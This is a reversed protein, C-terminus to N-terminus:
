DHRKLHFLTEPGLPIPARSKTEREGREKECSEGWRRIRKGRLTALLASQTVREGAGARAEETQGNDGGFWLLTRGVLDRETYFICQLPQLQDSVIESSALRTGPQSERSSM